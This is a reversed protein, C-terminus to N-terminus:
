ACRLLLTLLCMVVTRVLICAFLLVVRCWTMWWTLFHRGLANLIACLCCVLVVPVMDGRSPVVSVRVPVPTLVKRWVRSGVRILILATGFMSYMRCVMVTLWVFSHTGLLPVGSKEAISTSVRGVWTM